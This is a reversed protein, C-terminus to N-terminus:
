KEVTSISVYLEVKDPEVNMYIPVEIAVKGGGSVEPPYARAGGIVTGSADYLVATVVSNITYDSSNKMMATVKSSYDGPFFTIDDIVLPNSKVGQSSLGIADSDFTPPQVLVEIRDIADYEVGEPLYIGGAIAQKEGPFISNIMDSGIALVNGETDYIVLRCNLYQYLDADAPNKLVAAYSVYHNSDVKYGWASVKPLASIDVMEVQGDPPYTAYLQVLAPDETFTMNVMLPLQDGPAAYLTEYNNGVGVINGMGDFGIASVTIGNVAENGNFNMVATVNPNYADSYLKVRDFTFLDGDISMPFLRGGDTVEVVLRDVVAGEPPTIGYGPVGLEQNPLISNVYTSGTGLITDDADYAVAQLTVYLLAADPNPNKIILGYNFVTSNNPDQKFWTQVVEATDTSKSVRPTPVEIVNPDSDGGDGKEPESPEGADPVRTPSSDGFAETPIPKTVPDPESRWMLIGALGTGLVCFALCGLVAVIILIWAWGPFNKKATAAPATPYHESSPTRQPQPSVAKPTFQFGCESCKEAKPDIEHGCIPCTPTSDTQEM